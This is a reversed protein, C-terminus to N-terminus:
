PPDKVTSSSPLDASSGTKRSFTLMTQIDDNDFGPFDQGEALRVIRLRADCRNHLFGTRNFTRVINDVHLNLSNLSGGIRFLLM